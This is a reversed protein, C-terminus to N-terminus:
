TELTFFTAVPSMGIREYFKLLGPSGNWILAVLHSFGAERTAVRVADVLARGIGRGQAKSSVALNSLGAFGEDRTAWSAMGFVVGDDEWLLMRGADIASLLQRDLDDWGDVWPWPAGRHTDDFESALEKAAPLDARTATRIM